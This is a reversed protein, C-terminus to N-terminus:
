GEALEITFHRRKADTLQVRDGPRFVGTYAMSCAGERLSIVTTRHTTERYSVSLRRPAHTVVTM